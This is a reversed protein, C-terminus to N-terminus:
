GASALVERSLDRVQEVAISITHKEHLIEAKLSGRVIMAKRDVAIKDEKCGADRQLLLELSDIEPCLWWCSIEEQWHKWEITEARAWLVCYFCLSERDALGEWPQYCGPYCGPRGELM